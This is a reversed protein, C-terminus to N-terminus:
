CSNSVVVVVILVCDLGQPLLCNIGRAGAFDGLLLQESALLLSRALNPPEVDVYHNCLSWM